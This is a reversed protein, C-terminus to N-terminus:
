LTMVMLLCPNSGWLGQLEEVPRFGMARYFKRTAAYGPDPHSPGLTKVQLVECGDRRLETLLQNVLARGVGERHHDPGVAMLHIEAAEPFHRRHLLVGVPEDGVRAVLGNLTRAANVYEANAEAIGFWAPLQALLAETTTALADSAPVATINM